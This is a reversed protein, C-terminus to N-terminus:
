RHAQDFFIRGGSIPGRLLLHATSHRTTYRSNYELGHPAQAAMRLTQLLHEPPEQKGVFAAAGLHLARQRTAPDDYLSLMVVRLQPVASLLRPLLALGDEGALQVDLLVLQPRTTRLQALAPSAAAAEAVVTLDPELEIIMRLGQRVAPQDDILMITISM